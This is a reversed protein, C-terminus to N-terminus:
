DLFLILLKVRVTGKGCVILLSIERTHLPCLKHQCSSLLSSTLLIPM